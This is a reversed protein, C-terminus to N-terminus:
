KYVIDRVFGSTLFEKSIKNSNVAGFFRLVPFRLLDKM